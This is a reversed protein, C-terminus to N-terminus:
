ITAAAARSSTTTASADDGLGCGSDDARAEDEGKGGKLLDKGADERLIARVSSSTADGKLEDDGAGAKIVHTRAAMASSADRM